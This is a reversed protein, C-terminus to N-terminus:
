KVRFAVSRSGADTAVTLTYKGPKLTRGNVRRGLTFGAKGSKASQSWRSVTSACAKAGCARHVSISVKANASVAFTVKASRRATVTGTISLSSIVPTANPAPTATPAPPVPPVPTPAPPAPTPTPVPPTPTPTPTPTPVVPANVAETAAAADLRGGTVSLGALGARLDVSALLASKLAATTAGPRVGLLLAAAGAVHPTAMSTGDMYVYDSGPVASAIDVGPAFLDVATASRNSFSAAADNEDSAGVCVVNAAAANCPYYDEANAGDNGAAIVYLTNPHAAIVDDVTTSHGLGGLSANVVRVGLDGAYDFAAAIRAASAQSGPAGFVKVPLVRAAPAVGAIGVGNGALAAITGTVHSGHMHGQDDVTNDNNAFDWGQWDDVLGNGDDDLGNTEKGAGREGPNGTFQGVLDPHTTQIGSDVVAVTAGAGTSHTWADTLGIKPLGWLLGWLSDNTAPYAPLDPEAYVVDPNAELQALASEVDGDRPAVLETGPLRLTAVLEVDADSRVAAREAASLGDVRKVIIADDAHAAAPFALAALVLSLALRM